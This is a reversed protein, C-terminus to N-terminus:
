KAILTQLKALNNDVDVGESIEQKLKKIEEQRKNETLKIKLDKFYPENLAHKHELEILTKNLIEEPIDSKYDEGFHIALAAIESEIDVVNQASQVEAVVEEKHESIYSDIEKKLSSSELSLKAAVQNVYVDRELPSRVAKLLPVIYQRVYNIRLKADLKAAEATYWDILLVKKALVDAWLNKDELAMDAVDKGSLTVTYVELGGYMCMLGARESAKHGAADNDFALVVRDALRSIIRVHEETFATGSVAVVNEVGSYVSMVVDMQGEVLVIERKESIDKKAKDYNFLVQSKHYLPTEPTNVYKGTNGDDYQPLIRGTFGIVSGGASCIPFMIRGRFRDYYKGEDTKIILGSTVVDEEQFGARKLTDYLDRWDKKAFGIVFKEILTDTVGRDHLYKKAEISNHLNKFYHESTLKLIPLLKSEEQKNQARLTVGARDALIKLADRFEIHEIKEVFSFIDGSENCGFCHFSNRSPSVYFSPTRENHFPCRAKYQNGSKELRLYQSIVEVVSLKSKIEEVPTM